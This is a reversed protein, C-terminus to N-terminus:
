HKVVLCVCPEVVKPRRDELWVTRNGNGHTSKWLDM